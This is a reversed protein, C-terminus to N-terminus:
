VKILKKYAELTVAAAHKWTYHNFIKHQLEISPKSKAATVVADYISESKGPDCYFASNGFYERAYGKDTIVINCGMAAAELSSLGCTEFWSPLIHIKAKKYYNVLEEQSVRGTFEINKAAIQRCRRYYNKQNPSADGILLLKFDTNNLAEILTLQNKIGEIRAACLVLKEDKLIANDPTFLIEDVGNPVIVCPKGIPYLKKLGEYELPSNPLIMETKQLIQRVSKAHGKWIYSKAPLVDKRIIWRTITKIYENQDSSFLRFIFGSIGKRHHRDYESYDVLLPSIVFPKNTRNIHYLINAPRIIDFFHLLDFEEYNIKEHTLFIHVEVGLKQLHKATEIIQVASGGHIKYLTSRTIFAVKM